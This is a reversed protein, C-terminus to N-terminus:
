IPNIWTELTSLNSNTSSISKTMSPVWVIKHGLVGGKVNWEEVAMETARQQDLGPVSYAGRLLHMTRYKITTGHALESTPAAAMLTASILGLLLLALRAMRFFKVGPQM